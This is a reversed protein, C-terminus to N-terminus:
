VSFPGSCHHDASGGFAFNHGARLSREVPSAAAGAAAAASRGPAEASRVAPVVVGPSAPCVGARHSTQGFRGYGPQGLGKNLRDFWSVCVRLRHHSCSRQGWLSSLPWWRWWPVWLRWGGSRRRRKRRWGLCRAPRCTLRRPSSVEARSDCLKQVHCSRGGCGVWLRSDWLDDCLPLCQPRVWCLPCWLGLFSGLHSSVASLCSLLCLCLLLM